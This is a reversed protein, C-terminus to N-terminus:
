KKIKLLDNDYNCELVIGSFPSISRYLNDVMYAINILVDCAQASIVTIRQSTLELFIATYCILVLAYM